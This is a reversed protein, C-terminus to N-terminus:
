HTKQLLFYYLINYLVLRVTFYPLDQSPAIRINQTRGDAWHSPDLPTRASSRLVKRGLESTASELNDARDGIRRTMIGKQGEESYGMWACSWM